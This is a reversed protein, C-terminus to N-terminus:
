IFLSVVLDILKIGAFPVVVGGLGYILLNRRLLASAGIPKYAVGRLALPILIPIIVANFIVASLIASGPSALRMVNLAALQPIAVMFLAPVIAFYKAVDNAISFTTLTGRTMLLQKGIEVIEILKTPDNDLDVMNGAEKAAQTGSNMAVGVNAQALAPADNTGDGMMAVLKGNAQERRIYEMKDEPKAEAIYDDVGAKEAIYKATLPNDGTVMVTKVGMKHLREFRQRIGEKIIDQLEVVGIVEENRSVVLPTGGNSSICNTIEEVEKPYTKGAKRCISAIAESAGKRIRTGEKLDVGSCKTEATFKIMTAGATSLDRIRLGHEHSLEVISKGEPTEDSLSALLCAQVFAKEEMRYPYFRTARRNGITITGTKDLLLTDIDGATEVAKGSKTIVNARLARDMGAIGIASLLGGITTPILCVFLSVFAAIGINVGTYDAFPKLTACVVVFVLTFGALVITLAIENPTKRRSAGEVLAIMKDLFSEGPQTTVVVKIQDSLVKTGGTVSSKDGGAERIVPASEGTIASEDISALGEIIEGDSPIVDGAECVFIDGKKLQSSSVMKVRNGELLRAPTDERTKRLSDAQAKGRAEAIAEAFNAFLLTIFLVVFVALNYGVSGQGAAEGAVAVYLVVLLMLATCVEVTFMIPNRFMTRPNLKVLSQRFAETVLEKPFLSTSKNDKM